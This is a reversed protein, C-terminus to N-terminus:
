MIDIGDELTGVVNEEKDELREEIDWIVGGVFGWLQRMVSAFIVCSAAQAFPVVDTVEFADHM